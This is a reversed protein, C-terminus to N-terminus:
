QTIESFIKSFKQNKDQLPKPLFLLSTFILIILEVNFIPFDSYLSRLYQNIPKSRM